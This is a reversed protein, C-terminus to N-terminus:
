PVYIFNNPNGDELSEYNVEAKDDYALLKGKQVLLADAAPPYDLNTLGPQYYIEYTYYGMDPLAVEQLLGDVVGGYSAVIPLKVTNHLKSYYASVGLIQLLTYSKKTFDNTFVMLWSWTPLGTPPIDHYELRDMLNLSIANFTPSSLVKLYIM